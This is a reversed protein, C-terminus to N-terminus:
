YFFPLDDPGADPSIDRPAGLAAYKGAYFLLPSAKQELAIALVEGVFLTHDGCDYRHVIRAAIRAAAAALVPVQSLEEFAPAFRGPGQGAFHRSQREQADTLVSVGYESARELFGHMRSRRGVSVVVLPPELSGSMFANATMAHRVGELRTSVVVIGTAFRGLATRFLRPDVAGGAQEAPTNDFAM